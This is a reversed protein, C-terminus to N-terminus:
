APEFLVESAATGDQWKVHVHLIGGPICASGSVDDWGAVRKPNLSYEGEGAGPTVGLIHTLFIYTPWASWAHCDSRTPEPEEPWTTLGMDLADRWPALWKDWLRELRGARAFAEVVYFTHYFTTKVLGDGTHLSDVLDDVADDPVIDTLIAWAQAHQTYGWSEDPGERFLRKAPNWFQKWLADALGAAHSEWFDLERTDGVAELLRAYSQLAALYQLNLTASPLGAMSPPPVGAPWSWDVFNWWPLTGLVGDGNVHKRFWELVDRCGALCEAVTVAEEPAYRLLDEVMLIWLLSFPPIIQQLNSPYRSLTLGDSTRSWDFLRVARAGLRTDGTTAYSILAQLRADGVYQLQEYYPCDMFTEGTCRELTRFDVDMVAPLESPGNEVHFAARRRWPYGTLRYSCCEIVLPDNATTVTLKVFRFARWHLPSYRDRSGSPHYRDTVGLVDVGERVGRLGKAGGAETMAEAYTIEVTAGRGGQLVLEPYGIAYEGADLIVEMRAQGSIRVPFRASKDRFSRAEERMPPIDRPVLHWRQSGAIDMGRLFASCVIVPTDWGDEDCQRDAWHAPVSAGFVEEADGAAYYGDGPLTVPLRKCATDAHVRWRSTDSTDIVIGGSM